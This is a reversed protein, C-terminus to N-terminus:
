LTVSVLQFVVRLPGVDRCKRGARVLVRRTRCAGLLQPYPRQSSALLTGPVIWRAKQSSSRLTGPYEPCDLLGASQKSMTYGTYDLM